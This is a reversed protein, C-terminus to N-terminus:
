RLYPGCPRSPKGAAFVTVMENCVRSAFILWRVACAVHPVLETCLFRLRDCPIPQHGGASAPVSASIIGTRSVKCERQWTAVVVSWQRAAPSSRIGKYRFDAVWSVALVAVLATVALTPRLAMVAHRQGTGHRARTDRRRRLVQDVAIILSAWFLLIPLATYRAAVENQLTVPWHLDWPNLYVSVISFIFGTLLALVIFPRTGPLTAMIVGLVVVLAVGVILTARDRTTLSELRWSLHWGISRLVVDHLYFTISNGLRNDRGFNPGRAGTLRNQHRVTTLVVFPVQILCGALWGATVAHDRLNRLVYVRIALLPAFLVVITTSAAAIFAVAAAVAMGARTRPRWVMAWFAALLMYWLTNVTSDAIEMPASPLLIVAAALVVRLPVSRIYGASAHFIFLACGAAVLAGCVAFAKAVDALPLYTVGQGVVRQLLQEYGDFQAYIRWPHQLAGILYVFYDEAYVTDWAPVGPVRLLLVAAGLLVAAVQVIAILVRWGWTLPVARAPAVPFLSALAGRIGGAPDPRTPTSRAAEASEASHGTTPIM